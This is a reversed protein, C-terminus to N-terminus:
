GHHIDRDRIHAQHSNDLNQLWRDGAAAHEAQASAQDSLRDMKVDLKKTWGVLNELNAGMHEVKTLADALRDHKQQCAGEFTRMRTEIGAVREDKLATLDRTLTEVAAFKGKIVLGVIGSGVLIGGLGSCASIIAEPSISM